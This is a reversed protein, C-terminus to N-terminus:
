LVSRLVFVIRQVHRLYDVRQLCHTILARLCLPKRSQGNSIIAIAFFAGVIGITTGYQM